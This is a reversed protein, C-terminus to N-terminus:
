QLTWTPSQTAPARWLQIQGGATVTIAWVGADGSLYLAGTGNPSGTSDVAVGRSNFLLCATGAITQNAADRCPPAQAITSQTSPPATGVVGFSLANRSSILTSGGDAVWAPTGTKRWTEVHYSKNVLDVYLRANSFTAAARMKTVATSNALAHADGSLRFEALTNGTIPLGVAAIIATLALAVVLEVASFGASLKCIRQM